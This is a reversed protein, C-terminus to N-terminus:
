GKTNIVFEGRGLRYSEWVDQVRNDQIKSGNREARMYDVMVVIWGGGFPPLDLEARASKMSEVIRSVPLEFDATAADYSPVELTTVTQWGHGMAVDVRLHDPRDRHYSSLKDPFACRIHIRADAGTFLSKPESAEPETAAVCFGKGSDRAREAGGGFETRQVQELKGAVLPLRDDLNVLDVLDPNDQLRALEGALMWLNEHDGDIKDFIWGYLNKVHKRGKDRWSAIEDCDGETSQPACSKKHLEKAAELTLTENINMARWWQKVNPAKEFKAVEEDALQATRETGQAEDAERPELALLWHSRARPDLQPTRTQEDDHEM